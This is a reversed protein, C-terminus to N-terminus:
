AEISPEKAKGSSQPLPFQQSDSDSSTGPRPPTDDELDSDDDDDGINFVEEREDWTNPDAFRVTKGKATKPTRTGPSHTPLLFASSLEEDEDGDSYDTNM